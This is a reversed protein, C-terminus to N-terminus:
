LGETGAVVGVVGGTEEGVEAFGCPAVGAGCGAWFAGAFLGSSPVGVEEGEEWFVSVVCGVAEEGCTVPGEAETGVGACPVGEPCVAFVPPVEEESDGLGGTSGRVSGCLALWGEAFGETFPDESPCPPEAGRVGAEVSGLVDPGCVPVACFLPSM